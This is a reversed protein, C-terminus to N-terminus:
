SEIRARAADRGGTRKDLEAGYLTRTADGAEIVRVSRVALREGGCSLSRVTERDAAIILGYGGRASYVDGEHLRVLTPAPSIRDDPTTSCTLASAKRASTTRASPRCM